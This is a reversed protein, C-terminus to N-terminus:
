GKVTSACVAVNLSGTRVASYVSKTETIFVLWNIRYTACTATQEWIFVFCMFVTHASRVTTSHQVHQHMVYRAPKLLKIIQVGWGINNSHYFRSSHTTLPIYGTHPISSAYEPNQHLFRFSLSWKPSGPMAPFIINLHIKLFYFHPCPSSQDPEPYPCTAPVQSHPLSSRPEM